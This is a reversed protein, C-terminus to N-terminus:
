SFDKRFSFNYKDSKLVVWPIVIKEIKNNVMLGLRTFFFLYCMHYNGPVFKIWSQFNASLSSQVNHGDSITRISRIILHNDLTYQILIRVCLNHNIGPFLKNCLLLKHRLAILLIIQVIQKTFTM